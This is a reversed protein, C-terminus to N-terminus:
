RIDPGAIILNGSLMEVYRAYSVYIRISVAKALREDSNDYKLLLIASVILQKAYRTSFTGIQIFFISSNCAFTLSLCLSIARIGTGTERFCGRRVSDLSDIRGPRCCISVDLANSIVEAGCGLSIAFAWVVVCSSAFLFRFVADSRVVIEVGFLYRDLFLMM